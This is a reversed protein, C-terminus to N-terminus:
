LLIKFLAVLQKYLDGLSVLGGKTYCNKFKTNIFSALNKAGYDFKGEKKGADTISNSMM